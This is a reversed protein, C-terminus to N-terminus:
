KVYPAGNSRYPWFFIKGVLGRVEKDGIYMTQAGEEPVKTSGSRISAVAAYGVGSEFPYDLSGKITVSDDSITYDGVKLSSVHIPKSIYVAPDLLHLIGNANFDSKIEDMNPDFMLTLYSYDSSKYLDVLVEWNSLPKGKLIINYGVKAGTSVSIDLKSNIDKVVYDIKMPDSWLLDIGATGYLGPIIYREWIPDLEIKSSLGDWVKALKGGIIATYPKISVEPTLALKLGGPNTLDKVIGFKLTADTAAGLSCMAYVSLGAKMGMGGYAYLSGSFDSGLTPNFNDDKPAPPSQYRFSLGNGKNYILGYTGLDYNFTTSATFKVEGGVGGLMDFSIEPIVVIPGIPIGTTYITLLHKRKSWEAKGSLGFTTKLSLKPNVTTYIYQLEGAFAGAAIRMGITMQATVDCSCHNGDEASLTLAPPCYTHSSSARTSTRRAMADAVNTDYTPVARSSLINGEGDRIERIYSSIDIDVGGNPNLNGAEDYLPEGITLSEFPAAFNTEPVAVVEYHNGDSSLQCQDIKFVGGQPMDTTPQNFILYGGVQPNMDKHASLTLTPLVIRNGNADVIPTGDDAKAYNTSVSLVKVMDLKEPTMVQTTPKLEYSMGPINQYTSIDGVPYVVSRKLTKGEKSGATRVTRTGDAAIFTVEFGKPYDRAPVVIFATFLGGGIAEIGQSGMDLTLVQGTGTFTTVPLGSSLDITFSGSVPAGSLDRFEINKITTNEAFVQGIKVVAMVNVFSIGADKSGKGVMVSAQPDPQPIGGVLTYHQTTPFDLKLSTGSITATSSYPYYAQLDGAPIDTVTRFDASKGDSSISSEAISFMINQGSPGFVGIRDGSQWFSELKIGPNDLVISRTVAQDDAITTHLVTPDSVVPASEQESCATTLLASAAMLWQLFRNRSM